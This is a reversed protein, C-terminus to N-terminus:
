WFFVRCLKKVPSLVVFFSKEVSFTLFIGGDVVAEVFILFWKLTLDISDNLWVSSFFVKEPAELWSPRCKESTGRQTLSEDSAAAVLSTLIITIKARVRECEILLIWNMTVTAAAGFCCRFLLLAQLCMIVILLTSGQRLKAYFVRM